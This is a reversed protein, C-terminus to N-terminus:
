AKWAGTIAPRIVLSNIDVVIHAAIALWLAGSSLYLLSFVVGMAGTAIVGARGQYRHAAAFMVASLLFGALASGTALAVLLPVALRFFLEEGVGAVLSLIVGWGLDARTRPM